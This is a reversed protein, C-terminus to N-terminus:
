RFRALLRTYKNNASTLNVTFNSFGKIKKIKQPRQHTTKSNVSASFLGPNLDIDYKLLLILKKGQKIVDSIFGHMRLFQLFKINQSSFNITVQLKKLRIAVRIKNLIQLFSYDM